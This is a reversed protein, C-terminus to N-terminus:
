SVDLRRLANLADELIVGAAMADVTRDPRAKGSTQEALREEAEASSLREDWLLVPLGLGRVLNNGMQRASQARPGESDDMNLPYGLVIGTIERERVFTEIRNLDDRWKTRRITTVPTALLRTRDSAALGITRSGPDLALLAGCPCLALFAAAERVPKDTNPAPTLNAREPDSETVIKWATEIPQPLSMTM